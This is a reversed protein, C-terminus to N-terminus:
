NFALSLVHLFPFAHSSSDATLVKNFQGFKLERVASVLM